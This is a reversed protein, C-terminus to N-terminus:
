DIFIFSWIIKYPSGGVPEKCEYIKAKEQAEELTEATVSEEITIGKLNGGTFERLRNIRFM